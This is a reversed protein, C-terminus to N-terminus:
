QSIWVLSHLILSLVGFASLHQESEFAIFTPCPSTKKEPEHSFDWAPVVACTARGVLESRARLLNHIM